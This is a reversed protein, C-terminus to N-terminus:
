VEARGAENVYASLKSTRIVQLTMPRKGGVIREFVEAARRGGTVHFAKGVKVIRDGLEMGANKAQGDFALVTVEVTGGIDEIKVGLKKGAVLTVEFVDDAFEELGPQALLLDTTDIPRPLPQGAGGGSGSATADAVVPRPQQATPAAALGAAMTHADDGAASSSGGLLGGGGGGGGGGGVGVSGVSGSHVAGSSDVLLELPEMDGFEDACGGSCLGGYRFTHRAMQSLVCPYCCLALLAGAVDYGGGGSAGLRRRARYEARAARLEAAACLLWTFAVAHTAAPQWVLPACDLAWYRAWVLPHLCEGAPFYLQVFLPLLTEVALPGLLLMFATWAVARGFAWRHHRELLGEAARVRALQFCPCLFSM